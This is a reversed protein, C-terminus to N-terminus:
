PTEAAPILEEGQKVYHIDNITYRGGEFFCPVIFQVGHIYGLLDELALVEAPYHGRLTSDSHSIVWFRTNNVSAAAKINQGIKRTMQIAESETLSRSNTLIYFLRTGTEFENM